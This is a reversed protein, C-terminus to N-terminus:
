QSFLMGLWLCLLGVIIPIPSFRSKRLAVRVFYILFLTINIASFLVIVGNLFLGGGLGGGQIPSKWYAAIPAYVLLEIVIFTSLTTSLSVKKSRLDKYKM